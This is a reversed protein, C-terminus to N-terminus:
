ISNLEANKKKSIRIILYKFFFFIDFTYGLCKLERYKKSANDYDKLSLSILMSNYIDKAQPEKNIAFAEKFSTNAAQLNNSVFSNEAKNILDYYKILKQDTLEITQSHLSCSLLLILLYKM